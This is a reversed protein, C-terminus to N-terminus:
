FDYTGRSTFENITIVRLATLFFLKLLTEPLEILSSDSGDCGPQANYLASECAVGLGAAAM